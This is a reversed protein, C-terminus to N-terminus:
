VCMRLKNVVGAGNEGRGWREGRCVCVCVCV